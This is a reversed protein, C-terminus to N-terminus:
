RVKIWSQIAAMLWDRQPDGLEDIVDVLFAEILLQRADEDSIGRSKLYFLQDADIEGITAGHSCTVDDAYIELEPKTNAEAQRSLILTRSMQNGDTKQAYRAVKVKGQFVAKARDDLIGHIRQFSQGDPADHDIRSTVDRMQDHRGLYVANLYAEADPASIRVQTESRSIAGGSMVMDGHYCAKANLQVLNLGLHYRSEDEVLRRAHHLHAGEGLRYLMLPASLGAGSGLHEELITVSSGPKIDVVVIPHSSIGDGEYAFRFVLPTDVQGSVTMAMGDHAHALAFDAVSHPHPVADALAKTLESDANLPATRVGNISINDTNQAVGNIFHILNKDESLAHSDLRKAPTLSLAKIANLNTFRWAEDRSGPWGNQEHRKAAAASLHDFSMSEHPM